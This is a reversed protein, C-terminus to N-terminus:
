TQLHILLVKLFKKKYAAVEEKLLPLLPLFPLLVKDVQDGHEVHPGFGGRKEVRGDWWGTMPLRAMILKQIDDQSIDTLILTSHILL